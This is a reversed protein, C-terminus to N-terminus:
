KSSSKKRKDLTDISLFEDKVAPSYCQQRSSSKITSCKPTSQEKFPHKKQIGIISIEEKLMQCERRWKDSERQVKGVEKDRM